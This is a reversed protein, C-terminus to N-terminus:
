RLETWSNIATNGGVTVLYQSGAPVIVTFPIYRYTTVGGATVGAGVVVGDVSFSFNSNSGMSPVVCLMIPKDNSNMYTVGAVRSGTVNQWSYSSIFAGFTSLIELVGVVDPFKNTALGSLNEQTTSKEIIGPTETTANNVSISGQAVAQAIAQALQTLDNGDAAGEGLFTEITNVIELMTHEWADSSVADGEIGNAPDADVYPVRDGTKGIPNVYDM